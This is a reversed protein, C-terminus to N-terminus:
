DIQRFSLVVPFRILLPNSEGDRLKRKSEQFVGFIKTKLWDMRCSVIPLQTTWGSHIMRYCPGLLLDKACRKDCGCLCLATIYVWTRNTSGPNSWPKLRHNWIIQTCIRSHTSRRDRTDNMRCQYLFLLWEYGGCFIEFCTQSQSGKTQVFTRSRDCVLLDCYSRESVNKRLNLTETTAHINKSKNNCSLMTSSYDISRVM